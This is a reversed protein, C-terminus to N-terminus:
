YDRPLNIEMIKDEILDEHWVDGTLYSYRNLDDLFLKVAQKKNKAELERQYDESGKIPNKIYLWYRM